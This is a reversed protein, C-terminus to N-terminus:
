CYQWYDPVVPQSMQWFLKPYEQSSESIIIHVSFYADRLDLFVIQSAKRRKKKKKKTGGNIKLTSISYM